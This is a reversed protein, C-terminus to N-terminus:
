KGIRIGLAATAAVAGVVCLWPWGILQLPASAASAAAGGAFFTAIYLGNFSNGAHPDISLVARQAVVHNAQVGADISLGCAALVWVSHTMAAVVFAGVVLVIGAISAHQGLSRDAMRGAAPAIMAGGAGALAFLAIGDQGLGYRRTLEIPAATWFLSFAGFLLSQGFALRRLEASRMFLKRLLALASLYSGTLTPVRRPLIFMLVLALGAVLLAELGFLARWGMHHSVFSAMPRALLIGSLLGGTVSGVVRGREDPDALSSGVTVFVQVSTACVGIIFCPVLFYIGSPASAALALAAASGVMLSIILTKSEVRDAVPGLFVLALSYGLQTLTVMIGAAWGAINLDHSILGV